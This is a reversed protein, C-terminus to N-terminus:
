HVAAKASNVTKESNITNASDIRLGATDVDASNKLVLPKSTELDCDEFKVGSIPSASLGLISGAARVKGHVRVFRVNKLETLKPAAAEAPGVMRWALNIEVAQRADKITIDQYTIDEIVGGRSPQSKIRIPAWNDADVTCDRVLVHRIGGSVESGIAVAGHGYGFRTKEIIIDESPRNIRRGEEDKGSKISIDDDNVDIDCNTVHVGRCSDIDIGDSSPIDHQARIQLNRATVAECYLFFVGWSAQDKVRINEITVGHCNQFAILRPHPHHTVLDKAPLAGQKIEPPRRRPDRATWVDGSGDITGAGTVLAHDVDIFNILASIWAREKGEWRTAVQPYDKEEVSGKLTAGEDLVLAVGPKFFLAGTTFIGAPVRLTGGGDAACRDIATQIAVTNSVDSRAVAGYDTILYIKPRSPGSDARAPVALMVLPVSAIRVCYRLANM